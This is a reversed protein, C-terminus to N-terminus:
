GSLEKAHLEDFIAQEEPSPIWECSACEILIMTLLNRVTGEDVRDVLRRVAPFDYPFPLKLIEDVLESQVDEFRSSFSEFERIKERLEKKMMTM